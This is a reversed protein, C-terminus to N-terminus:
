DYNGWRLIAHDPDLGGFDLLRRLAPSSEAYVTRYTRTTQEVDRERRVRWGADVTARDPLGVARLVESRAGLALRRVAYRGARMGALAVAVILVTGLVIAGKFRRELRERRELFPLSRQRAASQRRGRM